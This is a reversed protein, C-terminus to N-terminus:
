RSISLEGSYWFGDLQRLGREVADVPQQKGTTM